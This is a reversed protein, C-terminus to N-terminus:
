SQSHPQMSNWECMLIPLVSMKIISLRNRYRSYKENIDEKVETMLKLTKKMYLMCDKAVNMSFYNM